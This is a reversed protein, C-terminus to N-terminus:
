LLVLYEEGALGDMRMHVKGAEFAYPVDKGAAVALYFGSSFSRAAADTIGATSGVVHPVYRRISQAQPESFCANLVVCRVSSGCRQFLAALAGGSVVRPNGLEDRLVIGEQVGHGSFHVHTPAEEMMTRMLADVTVAPVSKLTVRGRMRGRLLHDEIRRQELELDLPRRTSNASLFLIKSEAQAERPVLRASAPPNLGVHGGASIVVNQDGNVSQMPHLGSPPDLPQRPVPSGDSGSAGPDPNPLRPLGEPAIEAPRTASGGLRAPRAAFHELLLRHFFIYGGGARQLFGLHVAYDLFRRLPLPMTGTVSLVLRLAAHLVLDVGGFWFLAPGFLVIASLLALTIADRLPQETGITFALLPILILVFAVGVSTFIRGSKRLASRGEGDRWEDAPPVDQRWSAYAVLTFTVIVTLVVVLPWTVDMRPAFLLLIGGSVAGAVAMRIATTWQWSLTGALRIDRDAFGRGAKRAFIVPLPLVSAAITVVPAVLASERIPVDINFAWMGTGGVLLAALSSLAMYGFFLGLEEAMGPEPRPEGPFRRLTFYSPLAYFLGAAVGMAVAAALTAGAAAPGALALVQGDAAGGALAVGRCALYVVAGIAVTVATAGAVRSGIAYLRLQRRDLWEPQLLEVAFISGREKMGSALWRLGAEVRERPFRGHMRERLVFMRDVFRGFVEGRLEERTAAEDFKLTDAPLGRFALTMISLMLPSTSLERLEANRALAGRLGDLELGAADLYTEILPQELPLLRVAGGLKLPVPLAEYERSRCCVALGPVGYKRVFAHLAEVCAARLDEGVEDLGDLLLLLRREELWRQPFAEGIPYRKSIEDVLWDHFTRSGTWSSLNLVVPVPAGPDREAKDICERALTLLTTTKGGGPEGLILLMWGVDEFVRGIPRDPPLLGAPEGVAELYRRWPADVAGPEMRAHPDLLAAHSVSRELVGTIWIRRVHGLLNLLNRRVDGTPPAAPATAVHVDGEAVVVFNDNGTVTVNSM